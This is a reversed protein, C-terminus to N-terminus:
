KKMAKELGAGAGVMKKDEAQKAMEGIKAGSFDSMGIKKMGGSYAGINKM